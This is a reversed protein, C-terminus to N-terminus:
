FASISTSGVVEPAMFQVRYHAKKAAIDIGFKPAEKKFLEDLNASVDLDYAMMCMGPNEYVVAKLVLLYEHIINPDKEIAWKPTIDKISVQELAIRPNNEKPDCGGSSYGISLMPQYNEYQFVASNVRKVSVEEAFSINSLMALSLIALMKM